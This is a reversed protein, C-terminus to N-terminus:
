RLCSAPWFCGYLSCKFYRFDTSVLVRLPASVISGLRPLEGRAQAFGVFRCRPPRKLRVMAGMNLSVDQECDSIRWVMFRMKRNRRVLKATNSTRLAEM